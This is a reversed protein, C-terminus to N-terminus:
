EGECVITESASGQTTRVTLFYTGPPLNVNEFTVPLSSINSQFAVGAENDLIEIYYAGSGSEIEVNITSNTLFPNPYVDMKPSLLSSSNLNLYPGSENEEMTASYFIVDDVIITAQSLLQNSITTLICVVLFVNIKPRFRVHILGHVLKLTKTQITNFNLQHM